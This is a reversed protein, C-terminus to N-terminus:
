AAKMGDIQAQTLGMNELHAIFTSENLQMVATMAAVDNGHNVGPNSLHTQVIAQNGFEDRLITKAQMSKPDIEQDVIKTIM